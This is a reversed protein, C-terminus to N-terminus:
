NRFEYWERSKQEPLVINQLANIKSNLKQISDYDKNNIIDNSESREHINFVICYDKIYIQIFNLLDDYLEDTVNNYIVYFDHIIVDTIDRSMIELFDPKSYSIFELTIYEEILTNITDILESLDNQNLKIYTHKPIYSDISTDSLSSLDCTEFTEDDSIM